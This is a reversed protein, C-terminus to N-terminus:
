ACSRRRGHRAATRPFRAPLVVLHQASDALAKFQGLIPKDFRAQLDGGMCQTSGRARGLDGIVIRGGPMLEVARDAVELADLEHQRVHRDFQKRHFRHEVAHCPFDVVAGVALGHVGMGAGQLEM